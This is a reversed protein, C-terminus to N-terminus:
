SLVCCRCCKQKKAKNNFEQARGFAEKREEYTPKGQPVGPHEYTGKRQEQAPEDHPVRSEENSGERKSSNFHKTNNRSKDDLIQFNQEIECKIEYFARTLSIFEAINNSVQEKSEYSLSEINPKQIDSIKQCEQNMTLMIDYIENKTFRVKTNNDQDAIIRTLKDYVSRFTSLTGNYVLLHSKENLPVKEAKKTLIILRRTFEAAEDIIKQPHNKFRENEIEFKM